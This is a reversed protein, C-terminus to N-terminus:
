EDNYIRYQNGNITIYEIWDMEQRMQVSFSFSLDINVADVWKTERAQPQKRASSRQTVAFGSRQYEELIRKNNKINHAYDFGVDSAQEGIFSIQTNVNYFATSYILNEEKTLYTAESVKGIQEHDLVHIVCYTNKPELGSQHARIVKTDPYSILGLANTTAVNLSQEIMKGISM